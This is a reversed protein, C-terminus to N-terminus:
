AKVNLHEGSLGSLWILGLKSQNDNLPGKESNHGVDRGEM